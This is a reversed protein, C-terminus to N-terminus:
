NRINTDAFVHFVLGNTTATGIFDLDTIPVDTQWGTGIVHFTCRKFAVPTVAVDVWVMLDGNQFDVSLIKYKGDEGVPFLIEEGGVSTLKYKFIVRKM